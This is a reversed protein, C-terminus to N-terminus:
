QNAPRAGVRKRVDPVLPDETSTGRIGLYKNYFEAFGANKLEQRVRGQYYYAAPLYGFTPEEDLFLSLTEGRRKICRDFESDAQPFQGAALYVRGLDFHGIWTDLIANADSLSKIAQRRDNSALAALGELIKAHAQPDAQIEGALDAAITRGRVVRGSEILIRGALFRIKVAKSTELAKEAAVIAAAKQSRSLHAYAVAVLKAAARDASKATLDAAVGSELLKVAESFRGEYIALDALGSAEWSAAVPGLSEVKGLNRYSEAADALREQGAQAFALPLLSLPSALEQAAHAEQEGTQFDGGYSAYLALNIRFLARKPLIEVARRMESLAKPMNRLFTSCLALNNHALVDGDFRAILDTYEKECQQFDGTLRYYVGRTNYRERETMGDLHSLAEKFYKEADQLNGLNLSVTALGQYGIGFKPDLEVAKQYNQLADEFNGNSSAERAAAYHRLVDLSTASLSAMAFMQASDSSTDDGLASRVTAALRTAVELVKEKSAAKATANAVVEGTVTQAAKVSIGFGNGQRELTGTMVVGVGQKAAIEVATPEDFKEPARQGLARLGTRDYASIFGAGELALKLVPELTRDFTPDGTKNEFDAILVSVPDHQKPPPPPRFYWWVGSSLVVLLLGAAVAVPLGLVRKIPILEGNDDVRNLDAELEATTQYRGAPDPALCRTVIRDLPEPITADITRLSVPAADLRKQLEALATPAGEQRNLGVLADRLILGFAYIDARHDVTQGKAQEPAMYHITGVVAGVMTEGFSGPKSRSSGKHIEEAPVGISRAIGFDMLLAQGETDVMINAPKLDRHVIGARHAAVLGSLAQRLISLARPIALRGEAKLISGLDDGEVYPMTIYKIGNIEGLDHIRVVNPHTVQRALLLERKFRRELDRAAESDGAIEPRIVKLAVSVGLEGDWAEYVAGMGGVGLLRTIRYRTGFREGVNLPGTTGESQESGDGLITAGDDRDPERGIVTKGDDSAQPGGGVITMQDDPSSSPVRTVDEAERAIKKNAGSSPILTLRRTAELRGNTTLRYEGSAPDQVVEGSHVLGILTENVDRDSSGLHKALAAPSTGTGSATTEAQYIYELARAQQAVREKPLRRDRSM